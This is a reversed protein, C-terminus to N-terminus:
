DLIDFRVESKAPFCAANVKPVPNDLEPAVMFTSIVSNLVSFPISLVFSKKIYLSAPLPNFFILRELTNALSTAPSMGLKLAVLIVPPVNANPLIGSIGVALIVLPVNPVDLIASSAIVKSLTCFILELTKSPLVLLLAPETSVSM